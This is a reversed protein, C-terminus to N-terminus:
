IAAIEPPSGIRMPPGWFGTGRHVYVHGEGVRYLGASYTWLASVLGTIPFLQGGHTHGSLQLGIGKALGEEVARPQHALLVAPREPDRGAVAADLDWGRPQERQGYDDVGVLDLQADGDRLTVTRNRLVTLGMQELAACWAVDGSYFEHNGTIFYSGFRSRLGQIEAITSGIRDVRGDVLDGTVAVLDPKLANCRRVMDQLFERGLVDGIHIDSVQVIRLGDFARHLRPIRVAFEDISPPAFARRVGYASFGAAVVGAGGVAARALFQRRETSVEAEGSQRRRWGDVRRLLHFVALSMGLYLGVGMWCWAAFALADGWATHFRTFVSRALFLSAGALALAIAGARRIRRDGTTDRFLRRYLYVHGGVVVLLVIALFLAIRLVFM